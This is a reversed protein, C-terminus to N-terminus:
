PAWPLRARLVFDADESRGHELRGGVLEVREVLGILGTGAGPLPGAGVGVAPRSVVEVALADEETRVTVAVAAAPAHKHANTLGEQVVRYATRQVALPADAAGDVHLRATVHMGAARSDEVLAGLAALTPQPPEPAEAANAGDERLLGVIGRLDELTARATARIVGAAQAVEETPADPRFELAGAHLALLSVRHGLVDHMERAIRRREADRAQELRLGHEVESRAAREHLSLVLVRRARVFLGLVTALALILAGVVAEQVDFAADGAYLGAYVAVSAATLALLRVLVTPRVRVAASFLALVSAGGALASVASTAMLVVTVLVPRSRRWWLAVLGITGLAVDAALGADSHEARTQALVAIGVAVCLVFATVDVVWDRTSRRAGHPAVLEGPLLQRELRGLDPPAHERLSM